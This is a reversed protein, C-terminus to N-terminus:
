RTQTMFIKVAFISFVGAFTYDLGRLFRAPQEAIPMKEVCRERLRHVDHNKRM